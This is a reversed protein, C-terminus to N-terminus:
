RNRSGQFLSADDYGVIITVDRASELVCGRGVICIAEGADWADGLGLSTGALDTTTGDHIIRVDLRATDLPRGTIYQLRLLGGKETFTFGAGVSDTETRDDTDMILWTAFGLGFLAMAVWLAKM